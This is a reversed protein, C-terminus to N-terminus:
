DILSLLEQHEKLFLLEELSLNQFRSDNDCEYAEKGVNRPKRVKKLIERSKQSLMGANVTDESNPFYNKFGNEENM